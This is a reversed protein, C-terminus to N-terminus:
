SRASSEASRRKRWAEPVKSSPTCQRTYSESLTRRRPTRAHVITEVQLTGVEVSGERVRNSERVGPLM